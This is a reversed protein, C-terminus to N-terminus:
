KIKSKSRKDEIKGAIIASLTVLMILPLFLGGAFDPIGFVEVVSIVQVGHEYNISLTSHTSNFVVFFDDGEMLEVDDVFVSFDSSLLEVPVTVNCFGGQGDAGDVSFEIMLLDADFALDSVSSNSYTEVVYVEGDFSVEFFLHEISYQATYIGESDVTVSNNTAVTLGEKTWETFSCNNATEPLTFSHTGELGEFTHPTSFGTDVGDMTIPLVAWGSVTWASVSVQYELSTTDLIIEDSYTSSEMGDSDKIQYYVTKTEDGSTLTWSKSEAPAQWTETDWVGDNSLRINTVSAGYATYSLSLTVESSATIEDDGNILISGTPAATQGYAYKLVAGSGIYSLHPNDLYDLSLSSYMGPSGLSDVTKISWSDSWKAYKLDTYGKYSIHPNNNSDLALSCGKALNDVTADVINASWMMSVISKAYKLEGIDSYYSIHPKDNSDLALSSVGFRDGISDVIEIIWETGFQRAYKLNENTQDYYSIHGYDNSDLALSSLLGVNDESDVVDSWWQYYPPSLYPGRSAYKLEGLYTYYSIHPNDSSDLALSSFEGVYQTSDVIEINWDFGDWWAYKLQQNNDDFYSIHPYNNSDLALCPFSSGLPDVTDINWNGLLDSRAYKIEKDTNDFYTICPLGLSDLVLSSEGVSGLISSEVDKISWITGAKVVNLRFVAVMLFLFSIILIVKREKCRKRRQM